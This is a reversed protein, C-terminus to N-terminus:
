HDILQREDYFGFNLHRFGFNNEM